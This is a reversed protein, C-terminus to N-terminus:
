FIRVSNGLREELTSLIMGAKIGFAIRDWYGLGYRCAVSLSPLIQGVSASLANRKDCFNAATDNSENVRSQFLRRVRHVALHDVALNPFDCYAAPMLILADASLQQSSSFVPSAALTGM